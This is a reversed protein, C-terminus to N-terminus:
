QRTQKKPKRGRRFHTGGTLFRRQRRRQLAKKSNALGVAYDHLKRAQEGQVREGTTKYHLAEGCIPEVQTKAHLRCREPNNEEPRIDKRANGRKQGGTESRTPTQDVRHHERM